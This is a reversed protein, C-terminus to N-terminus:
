VKNDYDIKIKQLSALKVMENNVFCNLHLVLQEENEKIAVGYLLDKIGSIKLRHLRDFTKNLRLAENVDTKSLEPDGNIHTHWLGIITKGDAFQPTIKKYVKFISPLQYATANDVDKLNIGESAIDVVDTIRYEVVFRVEKGSFLRRKHLVRIHEPATLPELKDMNERVTFEKVHGLIVGGIEAFPDYIVKNFKSKKM